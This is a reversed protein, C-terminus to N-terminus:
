RFICSARKPLVRKLKVLPLLTLRILVELFAVVLLGREAPGAGGLLLAFSEVPGGIVLMVDVPLGIVGVTFRREARDLPARKATVNTADHLVPKLAVGTGFLPDTAAILRLPAAAGRVVSLVLVVAALRLVAAAAVQLPQQLM